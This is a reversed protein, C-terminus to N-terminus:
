EAPADADPPGLDTYALCKVIKGDVPGTAVQPLAPPSRPSLRRIIASLPPVYM